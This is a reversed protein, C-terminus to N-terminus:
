NPNSPDSAFAAADAIRSRASAKSSSPRRPSNVVVKSSSRRPTSKPPAQPPRPLSRKRAAPVTASASAVEVPPPGQGASLPRLQLGSFSSALAQFQAEIETETRSTTEGMDAIQAHLHSRQLEMAKAINNVPRVIPRHGGASGPRSGASSAPRMSSATGPRRGSATPPRQGPTTPRAGAAVSYSERPVGNILELEPLGGLVVAREHGGLTAEDFTIEVLTTAGKLASSLVATTLRPNGSLDVTELSPATSSLESISTLHNDAALLEELKRLPQTVPSLIALTSIRTLRVCCSGRYLFNRVSLELAEIQNSSLNLTELAPLTDVGAM